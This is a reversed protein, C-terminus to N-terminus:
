RARLAARVPTAKPSHLTGQAMALTVSGYDGRPRMQDPDQLTSAVQMPAWTARPPHPRALVGAGAPTGALGSRDPFARPVRGGGARRRRGGRAVGAEGSEVLRGFLAPGVVGGIGTGVAYFFAIALARTEM